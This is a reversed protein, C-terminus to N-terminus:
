GTGNLNGSKLISPSNQWWCCSEGSKRQRYGMNDAYRWKKKLSYCTTSGTLMQVRIAVFPEGAQLHLPWCGRRRLAAPTNPEGLPYLITCCALRRCCTLHCPASGHLASFIAGNGTRNETDLSATLVGVRCSARFKRRAIVPQRGEERMESFKPTALTNAVRLHHSIPCIGRRQVRLFKGSLPSGFCFIIDTSFIKEVALIPYFLCLFPLPNLRLQTSITYRRFFM